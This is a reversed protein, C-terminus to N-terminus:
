QHGRAAAAYSCPCIFRAPLAASFRPQEGSTDGPLAQPPAEAWPNKKKKGVFSVRLTCCSSDLLPGQTALEACTFPPTRPSM